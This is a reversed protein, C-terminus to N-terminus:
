FNEILDCQVEYIFTGDVIQMTYLPKDPRDENSVPSDIDDTKMTNRKKREMVEGQEM